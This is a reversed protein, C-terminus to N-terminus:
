NKWYDGGFDSKIKKLPSALKEEIGLYEKYESFCTEHFEEAAAAGNSNIVLKVDEEKIRGVGVLFNEDWWKM